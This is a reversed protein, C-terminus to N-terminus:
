EFYDDTELLYLALHPLEIDLGHKDTYTHAKEDYVLSKRYRLLKKTDETLAM